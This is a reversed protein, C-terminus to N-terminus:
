SYLRFNIANGYLYAIGRLYTLWHWLGAGSAVRLHSQDDKYEERRSRRRVSGAVQRLRALRNIKGSAM